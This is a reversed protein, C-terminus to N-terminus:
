ININFKRLLDKDQGIYCPIGYYDCIAKHEKVFEKTMEKETIWGICDEDEETLEDQIVFHKGKYNVKLFEKM